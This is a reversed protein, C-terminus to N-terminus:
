EAVYFPPGMIPDNTTDVLSMISNAIVFSLSMRSTLLTFHRIHWIQFELFKTNKKVTINKLIEIM